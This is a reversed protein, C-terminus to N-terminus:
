STRNEFSNKRSKPRRQDSRSIAGSGFLRQTPQKLHTSRDCCTQVSRLSAIVIMSQKPKVSSPQFNMKLSLWRDFVFSQSLLLRRGFVVRGCRWRSVSDGIRLFSFATLFNVAKKTTSLPNSGRHRAHSARIRARLHIWWQHKNRTCLYLLFDIRCFFIYFFESKQLFPCFIAGRLWIEAWM